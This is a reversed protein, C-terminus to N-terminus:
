TSSNHMNGALRNTKTEFPRVANGPLNTGLTSAKAMILGVTSEISIKLPTSTIEPPKLARNKKLM